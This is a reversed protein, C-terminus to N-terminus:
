EINEKEVVVEFRDDKQNKIESWPSIAYAQEVCRHKIIASTMGYGAAVQIDQSFKSALSFMAEMDEVQSTDWFSIDSNFDADNFFNLSGNTDGGGMNTVRTTCLNYNGNAIEGIITSDDVVTYVIGNITGTAGVAASDYAKITVRNADLYIPNSGNNDNLM